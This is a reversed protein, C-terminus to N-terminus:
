CSIRLQSESSCSVSLLLSLALVRSAVKEPVSASASVEVYNCLLALHACADEEETQCGGSDGLESLSKEPLLPKVDSVLPIRISQFAHNLIQTLTAQATLKVVATAPREFLSFGM